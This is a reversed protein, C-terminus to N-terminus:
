VRRHESGAAVITIAGIRTSLGVYAIVSLLVKVERRELVRLEPWVPPEAELEPTLEEVEEVAHLETRRCTPTGVLALYGTLVIQWTHDLKGPSYGESRERQHGSPNRSTRVCKEKAM